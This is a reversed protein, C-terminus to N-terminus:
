RSHSGSGQSISRRSSPGQNAAATSDAFRVRVKGWAAADVQQALFFNAMLCLVRIQLATLWSGPAWEVAIMMDGAVRAGTPQPTPQPVPQPIPTPQPVPVPQQIEDPRPWGGAMAYEWDKVVGPEYRTTPRTPQNDLNYRQQLIITANRTLVGYVGDEGPSFGAGWPRWQQGLDFGHNQQLARQYEAVHEGRDGAGIDPPYM